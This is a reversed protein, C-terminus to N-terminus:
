RRCLQFTVSGMIPIVVPAQVSFRTADLETEITTTTPPDEDVFLDGVGIVKKEPLPQQAHSVTLVVHPVNLM